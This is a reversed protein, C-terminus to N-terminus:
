AGSESVLGLCLKGHAVWRSRPGRVRADEITDGAHFLEDAVVRVLRAWCPGRVRETVGLCIKLRLILSSFFLFMLFFFVQSVRTEDCLM